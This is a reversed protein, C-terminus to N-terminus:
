IKIKIIGRDVVEEVKFSEKGKIKKKNGKCDNSKENLITMQTAVINLVVYSAFEKDAKDKCTRSLKAWWM